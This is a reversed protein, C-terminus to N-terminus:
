ETRKDVGHAALKFMIKPCSREIGLVDRRANCETTSAQPRRCLGSNFFFFKFAAAGRGGADRPEAGLEGCPDSRADPLAAEAARSPQLSCRPEVDGSLTRGGGGSRLISRRPDSVHAARRARRGFCPEM